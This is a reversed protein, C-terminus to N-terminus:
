GIGTGVGVRGGIGSRFGVTARGGYLRSGDRRGPHSIGAATAATTTIRSPIAPTTSTLLRLLGLPPPGTACVEGLGRTVLEGGFALGLVLADGLALAGFATGVVKPGALASGMVFTWNQEVAV